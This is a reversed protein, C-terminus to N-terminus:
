RCCCSWVCHDIMRFMPVARSVHVGGFVGQADIEVEGTHLNFRVKYEGAVDERSPWTVPNTPDFNQPDYGRRVMFWFEEFHIGFRTTLVLAWRHAVATDRINLSCKIERRALVPRLDIPVTLRLHLLGSKNRRLHAPYRM